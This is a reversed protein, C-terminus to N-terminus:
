IGLAASDDDPREPEARKLMPRNRSLPSIGLDDGLRAISENAKTLGALAPNPKQQGDKATVLIGYQAICNRCERALWVAGVFAEVLPLMSTTLLGRGIMDACTTQWTKLMPKLLSVPMPPAKSLGGEIAKLEPRAGRM